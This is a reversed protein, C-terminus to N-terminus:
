PFSEYFEVVADFLVDFDPIEGAVENRLMSYDQESAKRVNPNRLGDQTASINRAKCKIRLESLIRAKTEQMHVRQTQTIIFYVDYADQRRVRNRIPQQIIARFKEALIETIPYIRITHHEDLQALKPENLPENFSWDVAVTNSSKNRRLMNISKLEDKYAYGVNIRLTQFSKEPDKPNLKRSQVRCEMGYPLQTSILRLARDLSNVLDNENVEKYTACTSYDVDKTYRRSGYRVSLLVGGKLVMLEHLNNSEAMSLIIIHM